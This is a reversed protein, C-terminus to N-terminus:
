KFLQSINLGGERENRRVLLGSTIGWQEAEWLLAAPLIRRFLTGRHKSDNILDPKATEKKLKKKRFTKILFRQM